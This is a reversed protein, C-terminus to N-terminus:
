ITSPYLSNVPLIVGNSARIALRLVIDGTGEINITMHKKRRDVLGRPGSLDKRFVIGKEWVRFAKAYGDIHTFNARIAFM